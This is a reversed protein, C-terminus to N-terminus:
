GGDYTLARLEARRNDLKAIEDALADRLKAEKADLVALQGSVVEQAPLPTFEIDVPLSVAVYGFKPDCLGPDVVHKFGFESVALVVTAKMEDSM